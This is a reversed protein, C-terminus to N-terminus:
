SPRNCSRISGCRIARAVITWGRADTAILGGYRLRTAGDSVAVRPGDERARLNGAFSQELQVSGAGGAPRQILDFGQELGLPGNAYWEPVGGRDYVARNLHVEPAAPQASVLAGERGLRTLAIRAVGDGRRVSVGGPSFRMHLNQAPNWARLDHLWYLRDGAGLTAAV